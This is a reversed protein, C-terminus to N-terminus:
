QLSSHHNKTTVSRILLIFITKIRPYVMGGLLLKQIINQNIKNIYHLARYIAKRVLIVIFLDLM